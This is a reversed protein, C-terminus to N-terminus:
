NNIAFDKRFDIYCAPYSDEPMKRKILGFVREEHTSIILQRDTNELINRLLDVFGVINMEDFHGIPDDIFISKLPVDKKQLARGLFIAFAVVNLQATSLFWAPPYTKGEEGVVGFSLGPQDKEDFSFEAVLHKLKEHPELKEYIEGMQYRQLFEEMEKEIKQKQRRYNEEAEELQKKGLRYQKEVEKLQGSIEKWRLFYNEAERNYKLKKLAEICLNVHEKEKLLVKRREKIIGDFYDTAMKGEGPIEIALVTGLSKRVSLLEKDAEEKKRQIQKYQNEYSEELFLSVDQLKELEVKCEVFKKNLDDYKASHGQIWDGLTSYMQSKIFKEANRMIVYTESSQSEMRLTIEKTDDLTKQCSALQDQYAEKQEAIKKIDAKLEAIEKDLKANLLSRWNQIGEEQYVVFIGNEQDRRQIETICEKLMDFEDKIRDRENQMKLFEKNLQEKEEQMVGILVNLHKNYENIIDAAHRKIEALEDEIEAKKKKREEGKNSAVRYTSQLLKSSDDFGTNCVPCCSLKQKKIVNRIEELIKKISEEAQEEVLIQQTVLSLNDELKQYKGIVGALKVFINELVKNEEHVVTNKSCRDKACEFDDIKKKDLKEIKHETESIKKLMDSIQKECDVKQMALAEQKRKLAAIEKAHECVKKYKEEKKREDEKQELEVALKDREGELSSIRKALDSLMKKLEESRTDADFYLTANRYWEEGKEYLFKADNIKCELEDLEKKLDNKQKHLTNKKRCRELYGYVRKQESANEKEEALLVFYKKIDFEIEKDLYNYNREVEKEKKEYLDFQSDVLNSWQVYEAATIVLFNLRKVVTDGSIECFYEVDRELGEVFNRSKELENYKKNTDDYLKETNDYRLSEERKCKYADEFQKRKEGGTDWLDGWERYLEKPKMGAIFGDIKHHPLISNGWVKSDNLYRKLPNDKSCKTHGAGWDKKTKKNLESVKREIWDGTEQYIRVYAPENSEAETNKLVPTGSINSDAIETLRGVEGSLGWEVGDFFSTKGMGNPAFLVVLRAPKGNKGFDFNRKGRYVRFNQFEVRTIMPNESKPVAFSFEFMKKCAMDLKEEMTLEKDMSVVFKRSSYTNDEIEKVLNSEVDGSVFFWVYFNSRELMDPVESQVSVAINDVIKKWNKKLEISSVIRCFFVHAYGTGYTKLKWKYYGEMLDGLYEELESPITERKWNDGYRM